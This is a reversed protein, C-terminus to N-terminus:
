ANDTVKSPTDQTDSIPAFRNARTWGLNVPGGQMMTHLTLPGSANVAKWERSERDAELVVDKGSNADGIQEELPMNRIWEPVEEAAPGYQTGSQVAAECRAILARLEKDQHFINSHTKQAERIAVIGAAKQAAFESHLDIISKGLNTLIVSAGEEPVYLSRFSELPPMPCCFCLLTYVGEAKCIGEPVAEGAECILEAMGEAGVGVEAVDKGKRQHPPQAKARSVALLAVMRSDVGSANELPPLRTLRPPVFDGRCPCKKSRANHGSGKCLICKAPCNCVGQVMHTKTCEFDHNDSHHNGGCRFCRHTDPKVRCKLSSFYHGIKHCRSCQVLSPNEGVCVFKVQRGFMCVGELTAHQCQSNDVDSIAAIVTATALKFNAPNGQFHPPVM